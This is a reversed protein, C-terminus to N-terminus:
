SLDETIDEHWSVIIKVFIFEYIAIIKFCKKSCM